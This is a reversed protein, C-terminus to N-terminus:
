ARWAQRCDVDELAGFSLMFVGECRAWRERPRWPRVPRGVARGPRTGLAGRGVRLALDLAPQEFEASIAM